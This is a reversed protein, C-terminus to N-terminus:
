FQNWLYQNTVEHHYIVESKKVSKGLEKHARDAVKEKLGAYKDKADKDVNEIEKIQADAWKELWQDVSM